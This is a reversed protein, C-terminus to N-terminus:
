SHSKEGESAGRLEAAAAAVGLDERSKPPKERERERIREVRKQPNQKSAEACGYSSLISLVAFM